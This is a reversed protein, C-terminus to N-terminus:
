GYFYTIICFMHHLQWPNLTLEVDNGSDTAEVMRNSLHVAFSRELIGREYSCNGICGFSSELIACIEDNVSCFFFFLVHKRITNAIVDLAITYYCSLLLLLLLFARKNNKTTCMHESHVDVTFITTAKKTTGNNNNNNTNIEM